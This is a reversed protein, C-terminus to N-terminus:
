ARLARDRLLRDCWESDGKDLVPEAPAQAYDCRLSYRGLDYLNDLLLKLDISIARDDRQLPIPFIPFADQLNFSYLDARPRSDSQSVLIRYHTTPATSTFALAKGKRLLDIEVLHAPSALIRQRKTEYQTRGDGQKNVPSLIEIITIVQHSQALRLELYGTKVEIPMPLIVSTPQALTALSGTVSHQALLIPGTAKPEPTTSAVTRIISNDPVGILASEPDKVDYVREEVAVYYHPPLHEGLSRALETILWHHIGAWGQPSELYPNMGPFPSPM